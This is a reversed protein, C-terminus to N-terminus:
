VVVKKKNYTIETAEREITQKKEQKQMIIQNVTFM